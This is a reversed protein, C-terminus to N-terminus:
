QKNLPTKFAKRLDTEEELRTQRNDHRHVHIHTAGLQAAAGWKEHAGCCRSGLDEAEGIYLPNWYNEPTIGCIIYNGPVNALSTNFEAVQYDYGWGSIGTWRVNDVM